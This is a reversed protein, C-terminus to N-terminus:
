REVRRNQVRMRGRPCCQISGLDGKESVGMEEESAGQSVMKKRKQM